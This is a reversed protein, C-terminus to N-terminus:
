KSNAWESTPARYRQDRYGVNDATVAGLWDSTERLVRGNTFLFGDRLDEYRQWRAADGEISSLRGSAQFMNWRPSFLSRSDDALPGEPAAASQGAPPAEAQPSVLAAPASDVARADTSQLVQGHAAAATLVLLGCVHALLLRGM